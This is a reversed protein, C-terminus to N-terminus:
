KNKRLIFTARVNGGLKSVRLDFKKALRNAIAEYLRTRSAGQSEFSIIEKDGLPYNTFFDILYNLVISLIKFQDSNANTQSFAKVTDMENSPVGIGFSVEYMAGTYGIDVFYTEGNLEFTSIGGVAKNTFYKPSVMKFKSKTDFAEAIFRKFGIM